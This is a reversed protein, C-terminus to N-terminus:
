HNFASCLHAFSVLEFQLFLLSPEDFVQVMRLQLYPCGATVERRIMDEWKWFDSSYFGFQKKLFFFFVFCANMDTTRVQM